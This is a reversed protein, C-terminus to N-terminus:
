SRGENFEYIFTFLQGFGTENMLASVQETTAAFLTNCWRLIVKKSWKKEAGGWSIDVAM